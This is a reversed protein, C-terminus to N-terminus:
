FKYKSSIVKHHGSYRKNFLIVGFSYFDLACSVKPNNKIIKWAEQMGNSWYIDDFVLVSTENCKNLLFDSYKLTAEKQHNGDIFAFDVTDMKELIAPLVIDFSGINSKINKLGLSAFTQMAISAIAEDGEITYVKGFRNADALYATSIGFSTGLEIINQCHFEKVLNYMVECQWKPSLSRKAISKVTRYQNKSFKSGAGLDVLKLLKENKLLSKRIKEIDNGGCSENKKTELIKYILDSLERNEIKRFIKAQRYFSYLSKFKSFYSM